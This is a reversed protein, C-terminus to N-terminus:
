SSNNTSLRFSVTSWSWDYRKAAYQRRINGELEGITTFILSFLLIGVFYNQRILERLVGAMEKLQVFPRLFINTKQSNDEPEDLEDTDPSTVMGIDRPLAFAILGAIGIAAAGVCETLVPGRELAAYVLPGLVVRFLSSM